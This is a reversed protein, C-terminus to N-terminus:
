GWRDEVPLEYYAKVYDLLTSCGPHSAKWSDNIFAKLPTCLQGQFDFFYRCYIRQDNIEKVPIDDIALIGAYSRKGDSELFAIPHGENEIAWITHQKESFGPVYASVTNLFYSLKTDETYFLEAANPATCDDGACVSSREAYINM